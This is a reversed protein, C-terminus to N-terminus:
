NSYRAVIWSAREGIAKNMKQTRPYNICHEAVGEIGPKLDRSVIAHFGCRCISGLLVGMVEKM